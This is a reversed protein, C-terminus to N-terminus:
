EVVTGPAGSHWLSVFLYKKDGVKNVMFAVSTVAGRWGLYEQDATIRSYPLAGFRHMLLVRTSSICEQLREGTYTAGISTLEDFPPNFFNMRVDFQCDSLILRSLHLSRYQTQAGPVGRPEFAEDIEPAARRVAMENFGWRLKELFPIGDSISQGRLEPNQEVSGDDAPPLQACGTVVICALTWIVRRM